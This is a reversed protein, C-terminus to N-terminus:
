PKQALERWGDPDHFGAVPQNARNIWAFAKGGSKTMYAGWRAIIVAGDLSLEVERYPKMRETRECFPSTPTVDQWPREQAPEPPPPAHQVPPKATAPPKPAAKAPAKAPAKPATKTARSKM